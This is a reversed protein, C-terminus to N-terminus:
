RPGARLLGLGGLGCALFFALIVIWEVAGRETEIPMDADTAVHPGGEAEGAPGDAESPAVIELDARAVVDGDPAVAVVSYRGSGAGAPLSLELLFTGEEGTVVEALRRTELIGELRIELRVEEGFKEGRITIRSGVAAREPDLHIVGEEHALARGPASVELVGALATLILAPVVLRTRVGPSLRPRM